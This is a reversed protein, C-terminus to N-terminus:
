PIQLAIRCIIVESHPMKQISGHKKFETLRKKMLKQTKKEPIYVSRIVFYPWLYLMMRKGEIMVGFRHLLYVAILETVCVALIM